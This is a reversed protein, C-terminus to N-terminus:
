PQESPLTKLGQDHARESLESSIVCEILMRYTRSAKSTADECEFRESVRKMRLSVYEYAMLTSQAVATAAIPKRRQAPQM